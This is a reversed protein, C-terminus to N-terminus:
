KPANWVVRFYNNNKRCFVFLFHFNFLNILNFKTKGHKGRIIDLYEFLNSHSLKKLFQSKGLLAISNPTLPLGNTGCLDGKHTKAFFTIASLKSNNNKSLCPSM